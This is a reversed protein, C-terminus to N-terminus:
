LSWGSDRLAVLPPYLIPQSAGGAVWDGGPNSRLFNGKSAKFSRILLDRLFCGLCHYRSPPVPTTNKKGLMGFHVQLTLDFFDSRKHTPDFKEAM